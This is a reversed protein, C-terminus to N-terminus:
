AAVAEPEGALLMLLDSRDAPKGNITMWESDDPTSDSFRIVYHGLYRVPRVGRLTTVLMGNSRALMQSIISHTDQQAQTSQGGFRKEEITLLWNERYNHWVYDLNQNSFHRSTYPDPLGRLWHSFPTADNHGNHARTM